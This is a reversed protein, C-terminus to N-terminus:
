RPEACLITLTYSSAFFLLPLLKMLINHRYFTKNLINNIQKVLKSVLLPFKNVKGVHLTSIFM